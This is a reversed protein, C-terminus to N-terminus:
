LTNLWSHLASNSQTLVTSIGPCFRSSPSPQVEQPSDLDACTHPGRDSMFQTNSLLHQEFMHFQARALNQKDRM